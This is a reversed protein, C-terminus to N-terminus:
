QQNSPPPPSGCFLSCPHGKPIPSPVQCVALLFVSETRCSMSQLEALLRFPNPLLHMGQVELFSCLRASVPNQLSLASFYDLWLTGPNRIQLFTVYYIPTTKLWQIHPVKKQCCYSLLAKMASSNRHTQPQQTSFVCLHSLCNREGPLECVLPLIQCRVFCQLIRFIHQLPFNRTTAFSSLSNQNVQLLWFFFFPPHSPLLSSSLSPALM